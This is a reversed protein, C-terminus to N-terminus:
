DNTTVFPESLTGSQHLEALQREVDRLWDRLRDFDTKSLGMVVMEGSDSSTLALTVMPTRQRNMVLSCAIAEHPMEIRGIDVNLVMAHPVVDKPMLFECQRLKAHVTDCETLLERIAAYQHRDVVCDVLEDSSSDFASLALVGRKRDDFSLRADLSQERIELRGLPIWDNRRASM